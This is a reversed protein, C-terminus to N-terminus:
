SFLPDPRTPKGGGCGLGIPSTPFRECEDAENTSISNDRVRIMRIALHKGSRNPSRALGTGSVSAVIRLVLYCDRRCVDGSRPTFGWFADRHDCFKGCSCSGLLSVPARSYLEQRVVLGVINGSSAGLATRVGFERRREAVNGALVSYIGAAALILRM